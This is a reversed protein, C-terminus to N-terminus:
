KNKGWFMLGLKFNIFSSKALERQIMLGAGLNVGFKDNIKKYLGFGPNVFLIPEELDDFKLVIGGDAFVYPIFGGKSLNYRFDLFLPVAYGENYASIGVGVGALFRRNINFGNVTTLGLVYHSYPVSVNALGLAGNLETINIYGSVNERRISDQFSACAASDAKMKLKHADLLGAQDSLMLDKGSLKAQLSELESQRKVLDTRLSENESRLNNISQLLSAQEDIQKKERLVYSHNEKILSNNRVKEQNLSKDLADYDTKLTSLNKNTVSLENQLANKELTLSSSTKELQHKLDEIQNNKKVSLFGLVIIGGALGIGGLWIFPILRSKKKEQHNEKSDMVSIKLTNIVPM